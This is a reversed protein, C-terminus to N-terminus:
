SECVMRWCRHIRLNRFDEPVTQRSIERVSAIGPLQDALKFRRSHHSFYIVGGPTMRETLRAFMAEHRMQLDWDEDTRKSNSYTPPDVIALDFVQERPSENLFEMADSRIRCHSPSHFENLNMNRAAWALYVPSLDVTTTAIAGGAAAYVSFAGTYGFLNLVRKGDSEERFMARTQRHDLFLGTDLYDSLNVEFRLGGEQVVRVANQDATKEYQSLGRQRARLKLFARDRPLELVDCATAVMLELWDAHEAPTREHPRDFEALHLDDDYRDVILPIEPIDREYLRYCTVGFKTPWRRLHRARKTLRNRFLEAQERAKATLGGFVPRAPAPSGSCPSHTAPTFETGLLESSAKPANAVEDVNALEGPKPGHFQFYTCAIRGNYLKRRRNAPQGVIREFQPHSTLIYHSWSPLRRLVLPMTRYLEVTERESSLREGYPPNAILCGYKRQSSLDVFAKPEFHVSEFVGANQAHRRAQRLVGPDIDTGLVRQELDPQELQRAEDRAANWWQPPVAPWSEAAFSRRLGPAMRRAIMAAEIPITGSGCFPDLLPREPKWFSLQVLAAALTEKLPAPGNRTRYGRKHLSPGTTDIVLTAEDNKLIVEVQVKAGTEPLSSAAHAKLLKEVIAKKVIKQCAPVSSLQSGHSRGAVPFAMDAQIWADWPLEYTRDFLEGFDNASFRGLAIQVRDATRLWLNMRCLASLGEQLRVRGNEVCLEGYGLSRLEHAVLSEVGVACAVIYECRDM